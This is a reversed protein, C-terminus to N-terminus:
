QEVFIEHALSDHKLITSANVIPRSLMDAVKNHIGKIVLHIQQLFGM